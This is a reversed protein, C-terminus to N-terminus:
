RNILDESYYNRAIDPYSRVWRRWYKEGVVTPKTKSKMNGVGQSMESLSPMLGADRHRPSSQVRDLLGQDIPLPLISATLDPHDFFASSYRVRHSINRVRHPAAIFYNCSLMQMLEGVNIVLTGPIPDVAIWEGNAAQAELGPQEDQLLITIFGSDKHANVGMQNQHDEPYRILKLYPSPAEGFLRVIHDRDLGLAVSLMRLLDRSLRSVATLYDTVMARFGPLSSEPLWQNPGVLALYYPSPNDYAKHELGIDIQERFDVQNNTRESGLQEWGRFQPSHQKHIRFKEQESLDFFRKLLDMYRYCLDADLGHNEIYFFGFQHCSEGLRRALELRDVNSGHFWPELNIVPISAPESMSQPKTARTLDGM